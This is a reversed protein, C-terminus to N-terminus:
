SLVPVATTLMVLALGVVTETSSNSIAKVPLLSNVKFLRVVFALEPVNVKVVPLVKLMLSPKATAIEPVAAEPSLTVNETDSSAALRIDTELVIVASPCFIAAPVM